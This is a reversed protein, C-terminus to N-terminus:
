ILNMVKVNVDFPVQETTLLLINNIEEQIRFSIQQLNADKMVDVYVSVHVIGHHIKTKVPSNLRFDYKKKSSKKTAVSIGPVNKLASEVLSTFVEPSIAIRGKQSYNNIYVYDAM